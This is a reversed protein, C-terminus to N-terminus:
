LPIKYESLAHPCYYWVARRSVSEEEAQYFKDPPFARVNLWTGAAVADVNASALCLMQHSCYGVLVEKGNLKLGSTLLLLNALWTPSDVLYPSPTEPVVYVGAVPWGRSRDVVAEVQEESSMADASLAITMLLPADGFQRPAEAMISEQMMFWDEDVQSTLCGPLIHRRVGITAALHALEALLTATGPGGTFAGTSRDAIVKWYSHATLRHHDADRAYCQPDLLPECGREITDTAMRGLQEQTLDRPSLIVGGEGWDDLLARTHEMMGYGFQLYLRM